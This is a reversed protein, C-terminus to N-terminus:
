SVVSSRSFSNLKVPDGSTPHSRLALAPFFGTTSSSPPMHLAHGADPAVKSYKNAADIALDAIDPDDYAHITYHLAGPHLPNEALIGEAIAAAKKGILENDTDEGNEWMLSLGYFAAVEQNKPYKDHLLGMHTNFSKNRENLSGDGYLIEVGEWFEKELPDAIATLREEKSAGIQELVAYGARKDQLGWLAKYHSMAEGWYAMIETSDKDKASQFATLADDYEFSHILLLGQEFDAKAAESINFEHELVGLHNETSMQEDGKETCSIFLLIAFFFYLKSKTM